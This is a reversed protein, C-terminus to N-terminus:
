DKLYPLRQATKMIEKKNKLLRIWSEWLGGTLVMRASESMEASIVAGGFRVTKHAVDVTIDARPNEEVFRMFREVDQETVTLVPMGVATCNGRFIEAFGEGLIAKIGFRLLAQPAHERSSGCGFNKNVALISGNKYRSDNFPHRKRVGAADFREDYFACEGLGSFTMCKLFRAPIIRDTDIDNGRLPIGTGAITTIKHTECM